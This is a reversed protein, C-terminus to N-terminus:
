DESFCVDLSTGGSVVEIDDFVQTNEDYTSAVVQYFGTPLTLAYSGGNGVNISAVEIMQPGVSGGCSSEQRFSLTVHRADSDDVEGGCPGINVTGSIEGSTAVESLTFDRVLTTEALAEVSTCYPLYGEAYAVVNYLNPELFLAYNGTENSLTSTQIDVKDAADAETSDYIQASVLANDLGEPVENSVTGVIRGYELTDLVKVVPKLLWKGSSGAEVVSKSANFDLILETTEGASIYFGNVIKLGTQPGSPVTLEHIASTEELVVYNAYPHSESLINIGDDPEGGIILRMQTYHGASLDALGLTERVGNVLELLNYTKGPSAVTEWGGGSDKHVQVEDITVYVASYQYTSADTLSLALTGSGDSGGSGGGGGCSAVVALILIAGLITMTRLMSIKM